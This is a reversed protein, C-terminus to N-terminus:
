GLRNTAHAHFPVSIPLLACACEHINGHTSVCPHCACVCACLRAHRHAHMCASVWTTSAMRQTTLVFEAGCSRAVYMHAQTRGAPRPKLQMGTGPAAAVAADVLGGAGRLLLAAAVCNPRADEDASICATCAPAAAAPADAVASPCSPAPAGPDPPAAGPLSCPSAQPPQACASAAPVRACAAGTLVGGAETSHASSSCGTRSSTVGRRAAAWCARGEVSPQRSGASASPLLAPASSACRARLPPAATTSSANAHSPTARCAASLQELHASHKTLPAQAPTAVCVRFWLNCGLGAGHADHGGFRMCASHGACQMGAGTHMRALAVEGRTHEHRDTGAHPRIGM